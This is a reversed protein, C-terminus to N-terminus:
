KVSLIIGDVKEMVYFPAGLIDQDETYSYAKPAKPFSQHLQSLVKYERGMDHGRKIAGFPPRRLVLEKGEIVLLYTLNSFGNSFQSVQLESQLDEILQNQQLFVKLKEEHLEEGKRVNQPM